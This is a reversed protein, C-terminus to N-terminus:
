PPRRTCLTLLLPENAAPARTPAILLGPARGARSGARAGGWGMRGCRTATCGDLWGWVRGDFWGQERVPVHAHVDVAERHHLRLRHHHLCGSRDRPASRVDDLRCAGREVRRQPEHSWTRAQRGEVAPGAAATSGRPWGGAAERGAHLAPPAAAAPVPAALKSSRKLRLCGGRGSRAAKSLQVPNRAASRVCV